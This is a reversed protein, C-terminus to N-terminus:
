PRSKQYDVDVSRFIRRNHRAQAAASAAERRHTRCPFPYARAGDFDYDFVHRNIRNPSHMIRIQYPTRKRM